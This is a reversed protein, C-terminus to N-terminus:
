EDNKGAKVNQTRAVFGLVFVGIVLLLACCLALLTLTLSLPPTNRIPPSEQTAQRDITSTPMPTITKQLAFSRSSIFVATPVFIPTLQISAISQQAGIAQRWPVELNAPPSAQASFVTLLVSLFFATILNRM